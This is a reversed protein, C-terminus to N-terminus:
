FQLGKGIQRRERAAEWGGQAHLKPLIRINIYGLKGGDAGNQETNM